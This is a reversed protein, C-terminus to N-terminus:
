YIPSDALTNSVNLVREADLQARKLGNMVVKMPIGRRLHGQPDFFPECYRVKMAAAREFYGMALDYFDKETQLLDFGGYYIEFFTFSKYADASAKGIRGRITTYAHRVKELTSLPVKDSGATLAIKNREALKWRLEPSMTGEIHVHLEVKPIEVVFADNSSLHRKRWEQRQNYTSLQDPSM